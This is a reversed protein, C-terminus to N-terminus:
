LVHSEGSRLTYGCVVFICHKYLYVASLPFPPPRDQELVPLYLTADFETLTDWPFGCRTGTIRRADSFVRGRINNQTPIKSKVINTSLWSGSMGDGLIGYATNQQHGVFMRPRKFVIVM